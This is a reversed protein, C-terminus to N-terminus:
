LAAASLSARGGPAALDLLGRRDGLQVGGLGGHGRGADRGLDEAAVAEHLLVRHGAEVAVGLDELDALARGLHLAHDDGAAEAQRDMLRGGLADDDRSGGDRPVPRSRLSLSIRRGPLRGERRRLLRRRLQSRLVLEVHAVADRQQEVVAAEDLVALEGVREARVQGGVAHDGPLAQDVAPGGEDDRVVRGDLGARPARARDLLDDPDGLPRQGLLQRDEPQDVRGARPDGVLHRQERPPAAGSPDEVVLDRQRALHRLDAAQEPRGGGAAGVDRGEAVDHDHDLAVGRHVEARRAHGLHDDALLDRRSSIPPARICAVRTRSRRCGRRRRRPRSRAPGARRRRGASTSARAAARPRRRLAPARREGVVAHRGVLRHGEVHVVDDVAQDVGVREELDLRQEGGLEITPKPRM